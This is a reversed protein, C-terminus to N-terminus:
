YFLQAFLFDYPFVELLNNKVSNLFFITLFVVVFWKYLLGIKKDNFAKIQEPILLILYIYYYYAVRMVVTSYSSFFQIIIAMLILNMLGNTYTTTKNWFVFYGLVYIAILMFLFNYAGTDVPIYKENYYLYLYDFIPKRLIFVVILVIVLIPLAEKKIKIHYLPYALLFFVSSKHFGIALLVLLIYPVFRKQKIYKFSLLTLGVAITQRLGSLSFVFFGLVVFMFISLFPMKSYKSVIYGLPIYMLISVVFLVTRFNGGLLFVIHNLIRYLVEVDEGVWTIGSNAYHSFYFSYSVLDVGVNFSRLGQVIILSGVTISIMMRKLKINLKNELLHGMLLVLIILYYVLM